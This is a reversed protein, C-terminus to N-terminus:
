KHLRWSIICFPKFFVRLLPILTERTTILTQYSQIQKSCFFFFFSQIQFPLPFTIYEGWGTLLPFYETYNIQRQTIFTHITNSFLIEIVFVSDCSTSIQQRKMPSIKQFSLEFVHACKIERQQNEAEISMYRWGWM